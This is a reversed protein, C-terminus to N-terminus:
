MKKWTKITKFRPLRYSSHSTSAGVHTGFANIVIKNLKHIKFHDFVQNLSCLVKVCMIMPVFVESVFPNEFSVFM